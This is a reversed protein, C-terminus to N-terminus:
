CKLDVCIQAGTAGHSRSGRHARVRTRANQASRARLRVFCSDYPEAAEAPASTRENASRAAFEIQYIRTVSSISM